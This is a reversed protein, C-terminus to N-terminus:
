VERALDMVVHEKNFRKTYILIDLPEAERASGQNITLMGM